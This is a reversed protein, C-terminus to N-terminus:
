AVFAEFEVEAVLYHILKFGKKNMRFHPKGPSLKKEHGFAINFLATCVRIDLHLIKFVNEGWITGVLHRYCALLRYRHPVRRLRRPWDSTSGTDPWLRPRPWDLTLRGTWVPLVLRGSGPPSGRGQGSDPRGSCLLTLPRWSVPRSRWSRKVPISRVNFPLM